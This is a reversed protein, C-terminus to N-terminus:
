AAVVGEPKAAPKEAPKDGSKKTEQQKVQEAIMEKVKEEEAKQQAEEAEFYVTNEKLELGKKYEDIAAVFAPELEVKQKYGSLMEKMQPMAMLEKYDAYKATSKAGAKAVFHKNVGQIVEVDGPKMTRARLCIAFDVDRSQQSVNGLNKITLNAAKAAGEFDSKAKKAFAEAAAKDPFEVAKVATCESSKLFPPRDLNQDKGRKENYFAELAAESVEIKEKIENALVQSNVGWRAMNFARSFDKKYADSQDKGSRAIEHNLVEMKVMMDFADRKSLAGYPGANARAVEYFDEFEEKTIAPTGNITLLVDEPKANMAASGPKCSPCGGKQFLDCGTLLALTSVLLAGSLAFRFIKKM